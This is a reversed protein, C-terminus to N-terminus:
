FKTVSNEMSKDTEDGSCVDEKIEIETEKKKYRLGNKASVLNLVCVLVFVSIGYALILYLFARHTYRDYLYGILRLYAVGGLSGGALVFTIAIGTMEVHNDGWGIGSPFLPGIFFALPQALIWLALSSTHGFITILIASILCGGTELMILIRIPIWRAALFGSFRGVSFSIWFATNLFSGDDKSFGMEDISFARIFKGALREGGVVSFFYFFLFMFILIGYLLKGGACTAPNIIEKLTRAKTKKKTPLDSKHRRDKLGTFHYVYFVISMLVTIISVITYVYEIRSEELFLPTTTSTINTTSITHLKSEKLTSLEPTETVNNYIVKPYPVALFSNAILPVIFSGIGYGGHLAHLPGTAKEQWIQLLLRQGAINIIGEFTGQLWCLFWLLETIQVWPIVMTAAAGGDLSLALMLDCFHGFKDVFIGGIVAGTFYGVSRGSIALAVDEYDSHTRIKLDILTPGTIELYLGLCVWVLVLFITKLVKQFHSKDQPRNIEEESKSTQGQENQM